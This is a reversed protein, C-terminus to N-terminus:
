LTNMWKYIYPSILKYGDANLHLNDPLYVKTNVKLIDSYTKGNSAKGFYLDIYKVDWKKLVEKMKKYYKPSLTARNQNSNPTQYNIIYGIKAKPWQKKVTYIYYELGGLFTNTDYNGSFDNAKYTGLKVGRSIDNTGGHM